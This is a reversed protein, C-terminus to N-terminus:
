EDTAGPVNTLQVEYTAFATTHGGATLVVFMTVGNGSVGELGGTGTFSMQGALITTITPTGTGAVTGDATTFVTLGGTISRGDPLHITVDDFTVMSRLVVSVTTPSACPNYNQVLITYQGQTNSSIVGAFTVSGYAARTEIYTTSLSTTSPPPSTAVGTCTLYGGPVAIPSYTGTASIAYTGSGTVVGRAPLVNFTTSLTGATIAPSSSVTVTYTGPLITSPGGIGAPSCASGKFAGPYNVTVQGNGGGDTTVTVTDCFPGGAGTPATV